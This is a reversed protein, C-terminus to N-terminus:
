ASPILPGWGEPSLSETADFVGVWGVLAATNNDRAEVMQGEAWDADLAAQELDEDNQAAVANAAATSATSANVGAATAAALAEDLGNKASTLAAAIQEPTKGNRSAVAAEAQVQKYLDRANTSTDVAERYYAAARNAYFIARQAASSGEPPEDPDNESRPGQAENASVTGGPLISSPELVGLGASNTKPPLTYYNSPTVPLTSTPGLLLTGPGASISKLPLFPVVFAPGPSLTGVGVSPTVPQSSSPSGTKAANLYLQFDLDPPITPSAAAASSSADSTANSTDLSRLVPGVAM